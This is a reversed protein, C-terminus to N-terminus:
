RVVVEPTRRRFFMVYVVAAAGVLAAWEPSLEPRLMGPIKVSTTGRKVLQELWFDELANALGYVLMVALYVALTARLLPRQMAGLERSLLLATLAFLTGDTGHHHGLHVARLEPHGPEPVIEDALFISGLVPVDSVYFGLEAFVWPIAAIALVAVIAVRAWDGGSWPAPRGVGGRAVAIVTLALAILVGLAPVVNAAKADLDSQDVVGPVAVVLCLAVAVAAAVDYRRGGLRDVVLAVIAIAVLGVPFNAYVLARGLGGAIGGESVNYFESPPLRSYTVAVAVGVLAVLIWVALAETLSPGRLERTPIM